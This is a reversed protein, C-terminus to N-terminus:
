LTSTCGRGGKFLRDIVFSHVQCVRSVKEKAKMTADSLPELIM